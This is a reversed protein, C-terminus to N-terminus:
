ASVGVHVGVGRRAAARATFLDVGHLPPGVREETSAPPAISISSQTSGTAGGGTGLLFFDDESFVLEGHRTVTGLSPLRAASARPARLIAPLRLAPAYV